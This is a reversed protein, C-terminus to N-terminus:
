DRFITFNFHKCKEYAEKECTVGLGVKNKVGVTCWGTTHPRLHQNCYVWTDGFVEFDETQKEKVKPPLPKFFPEAPEGSDSDRCGCICIDCGHIICKVM